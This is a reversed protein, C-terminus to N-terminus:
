MIRSRYRYVTRTEVKKNDNGTQVDDGWSSWDSWKYYSYNVTKSRTRSRYGTCTSNDWKFWRGGSLNDTAYKGTGHFEYVGAASWSTPFWAEVWNGATMNSRGCGGAWTYCSTYVHM